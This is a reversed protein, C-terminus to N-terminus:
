LIQTLINNTRIIENDCEKSKDRKKTPFPPPYKQVESLAEHM